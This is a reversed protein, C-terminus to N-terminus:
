YFSLSLALVNVHRIYPLSVNSECSSKLWESWQEDSANMPVTSLGPTVEERVVSSLPATNAIKRAMKATGIQQQMDYDLMFYNPDIVATETANTSKIHVSGRSFPILAWYEIDISGTSSPTVLIESMPIQDKFILDYQLEMLQETVNANIVGSTNASQRAYRSLSSALTENKSSTEEGFLDEATFYGVYTASGNFYSGNTNSAFTIDAFTQDLLHEGVYPLDVKVDIGYKELIRHFDM